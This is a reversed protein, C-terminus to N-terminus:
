SVDSRWKKKWEADNAIRVDEETISKTEDLFKWAPSDDKLQRKWGILYRTLDDIVRGDCMISGPLFKKGIQKLNEPYYLDIAGFLHLLEHTLTNEFDSDLFAVMSWEQQNRSGESVGHNTATLACSRFDKNFVFVIPSEDCGLAKRFRAQDAVIESPFDAGFIEKVWDNRRDNPVADTSVKKRAPMISIEAYVGESTAESVLRGAVSKVAKVFKDAAPEDWCSSADDIMYVRLM